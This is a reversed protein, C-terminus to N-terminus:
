PKKWPPEEAAAVNLQEVQRYDGLNQAFFIVVVRQTM